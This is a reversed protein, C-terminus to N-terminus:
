AAFKVKNVQFYVRSYDFTEELNNVVLIKDSWILFKTEDAADIMRLYSDPLDRFKSKLQRLLLKHEGELKGELRGQERGEQIWIQDVIMMESRIFEALQNIIAFFQQKNKTKALRTIYMLITQLYQKHAKYRPHISM